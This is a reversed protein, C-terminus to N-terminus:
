LDGNRRIGLMSEKRSVCCKIMPQWKRKPFVWPNGPHPSTTRYRGQKEAKSLPETVRQVARAAKQEPSDHVCKHAQCLALGLTPAWCVPNPAAVQSTRPVPLTQCFELPCEVYHCDPIPIFRSRPFFSSDSDPKEELRHSSDAQLASSSPSQPETGPSPLDGPPPFPLNSWCEQRSFGM